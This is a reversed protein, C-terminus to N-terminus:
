LGTVGFHNIIAERVKAVDTLRRDPEWGMLQERSYSRLDDATQLSYLTNLRMAQKDSEVSQNEPLVDGVTEVTKDRKSKGDDVAFVDPHKLMKVQTEKSVMKVQGQCWMGTGYLHDNHAERRGVYKIAVEQKSVSASLFLTILAARSDAPLAGGRILDDLGAEFRALADNNLQLHESFNRILSSILGERM